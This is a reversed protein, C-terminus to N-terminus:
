RPAISAGSGRLQLRRLPHGDGRGAHPRPDRLGRHDQAARGEFLSHEPRLRHRQDPARRGRRPHRLPGGRRAPLRHLRFRRRRPQDVIAGAQKQHRTLVAQATAYASLAYNKVDIGLEKVCRITTQLRTALGYVNHFHATLHKSALGVPNDTISGDDLVYHQLIQHVVAHNAPLTQAHAM